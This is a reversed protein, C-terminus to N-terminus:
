STDNEELGFNITPKNPKLKNIKENIKRDNPIKSSNKVSVM